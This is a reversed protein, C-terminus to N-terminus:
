KSGGLFAAFASQAEPSTVREAFLRAEADIRDLIEGRDPKMLRRSARVAERPKMALTQAAGMVADELGDHHLVENVLGAEKAHVASTAEGMVLLDFARAHGMIRPALLTSAAEPVLGLDTFPTKLVARESAYVLDCHMLLTTGVGVAVGDVGAIMPAECSALARLFRLVDSGLGQAQQAMAAFDAIDNGATFSGGSGLFVVASVRDSESATELAEALAAYMASTIANKKEPRAFRLVTVTDEHTVEIGTSHGM